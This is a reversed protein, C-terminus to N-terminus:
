APQAQEVVWRLRGIASQLGEATKKAQDSLAVSRAKLMEEGHGKGSLGAEREMIANIEALSQEMAIIWGEHAQAVMKMREQVAAAYAKKQGDGITELGAAKL